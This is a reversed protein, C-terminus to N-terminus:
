RGKRPLIKDFIPRSRRLAVNYWDVYERFVINRHRARMHYHYAVACAFEEAAWDAKGPGYRKGNVQIVTVTKVFKSM